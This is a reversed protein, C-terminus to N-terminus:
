PQGDADPKAVLLLVLGNEDGGRTKEHEESEKQPQL